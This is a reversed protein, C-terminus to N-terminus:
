LENLTGAPDIRAARRASSGGSIAAIIFLGCAAAAITAWDAARVGYLFAEVWRATTLTLVSGLAIGAATPLLAAALARRGISYPPEGLALRIGYERARQAVVAATVSYAGLAALAVAVLALASLLVARFREGAVAGHRRDDLRAIDSLPANADIAHVRTAIAALLAIPDGDARVVISQPRRGAMHWPLTLEPMPEDQPRNHRVGEVVGVIQWKTDSYDFYTGVVNGGLLRALPENVIAAGTARRQEDDTLLRGELLEIGLADFYEPTTLNVGVLVDATAGRPRLGFRWGGTAMPAAVAAAAARVGPLEKIASLTTEYFQLSSAASGDAPSPSVSFTMVGTADYGTDVHNLRDLTKIFAVGAVILVFSLAVQSSVLLARLTRDRKTATTRPSTAAALDRLGRSPTGYANAAQPVGLLLAAFLAMLAAAVVAAGTLGPPVTRLLRGPYLAVFTRTLLPSAALGIAAAAASMVLTEAFVQRSLRSGAAGIAARVALERRRTSLTAVQLSAINGCAVLLVAGLASALLTLTPAIPTTLDDAIRVVAGETRDRNADPYEKALGQAIATLEAQAAGITSERTVRGVVEIWGTGRSHEWFAGQRPILPIWFDHRDPPYQTDFSPLIGVIQLPRGDLVISQGLVDPRGGFESRWFRQTLVVAAPVQVTYDEAAFLRGLFPQIGFVREFNREVRLGEVKRPEGRNTLRFEEATWASLADFSQSRERWDDFNELSSGRVSRPLTPGTVWVRVINDPDAFPLPRFLLAHALSFTSLAAAFAVALTIVIVGTTGPHRRLWRAAQTVDSTFAGPMIRINRTSAFRARLREAILPGISTLTQRWYWTRAARPGSSALEREFEHDLDDLVFRRDAPPSALRVLARALSPPRV